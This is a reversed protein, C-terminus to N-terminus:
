DRRTPAINAHGEFTPHLSKGPEYSMGRFNESLIQQPDLEMTKDNFM